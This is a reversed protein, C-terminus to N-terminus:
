AMSDEENRLGAYETGQNATSLRACLSLLVVTETAAYHNLADLLIQLHRSFNGEWKKMIEFLNGVRAEHQEGAGASSTSESHSGSPKQTRVLRSRRSLWNSYTAFITCTQM